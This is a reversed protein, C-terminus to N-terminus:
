GNAVLWDWIGHMKTYNPKDGKIYAKIYHNFRGGHNLNKYKTHVTEHVITHELYDLYHSRDMNIFIAQGKMWNSGLFAGAEVQDAYEHGSHERCYRGYDSETYFIQKPMPINMVDHYYQLKDLVWAETKM